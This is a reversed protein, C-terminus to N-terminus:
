RDEYWYRRAWRQEVPDRLLSWAANWPLTFFHWDGYKDFKRTSAIARARTARTLRQGRATARRRLAFLFGVDEAFLRDEPYGGTAEWDARRCFVVGTDIRLLIGIPLLLGVTVAIGLSWRDPLAGTAGAAVHPRALVRDIENFTQPHIRMDADVFCLIDGRAARAGGNRVAGIVRREVRAVRCGRAEAIAATRDSSCNDAVIVEIAAPGGAYAARAADVTDLLRPLYAEENFAPVVLSFRTTV